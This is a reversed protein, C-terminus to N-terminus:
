PRPMRRRIGFVDLNGHRQTLGWLGSPAFMMVLMAVCGLGIFYWTGYQSFAERVAFYVVTGVIPGEFTGIGGLVSVFIATATWGLGFASNPTVLLTNMFAVGGAGATLAGGVVWTLLKSREVPVGCAAAARESDRLSMLALGLRGRLLARTILLALCGVALAEWYVAANRTWREYDGMADLAIGTGAGLSQTNLVGIGCMEALVWTAVAFYPGTLRFLPKACLVAFLGGALMGVLPLLWVNMHLSACAFFGAYAGIGVFLYQGVSVLGGYGALLNWAVAMAFISLVEVLTRQTAFGAWWPVSGAAVM